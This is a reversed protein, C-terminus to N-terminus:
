FLSSLSCLPSTLFVAIVNFTHLAHLTQAHFLNVPLEDVPLEDMPQSQCTNVFACIAWLVILAVTAPAFLQNLETQTIIVDVDPLLCHELTSAVVLSVCAHSLTHELYLGSLIYCLPM